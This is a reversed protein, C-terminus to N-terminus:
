EMPIDAPASVGAGFRRDLENTVLSVVDDSHLSVPGVSLRQCGLETLRARTPEDFGLHDGIVFLASDDALSQARLDAAHEDLVYRPGPGADGLVEDLDGACVSVGPRLEHFGASHQQSM